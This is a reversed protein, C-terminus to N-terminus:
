IRSSGSTFKMLVNTGSAAASAAPRTYYTAELVQRISAATFTLATTGDVEHLTAFAGIATAPANSGELHVTGITGGFIQVCRDTLAAVQSFHGGFVTPDPFAVITDGAAIPGWSVLYGGAIPTATPTVTAM